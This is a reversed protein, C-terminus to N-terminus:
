PFYHHKSKAYRVFQKYFRDEDGCASAAVEALWEYYLLILRQVRSRKNRIGFFEPINRRDFLQDGAQDLPEVTSRAASIHCAPFAADHHSVVIFKGVEGPKGRLGKCFVRDRTSTIVVSGQATTREITIPVIVASLQVNGLLCFAQESNALNDLPRVIDKAPLVRFTNKNPGAEVALGLQKALQIAELQATTDGFSVVGTGNLARLLTDYIPRKHHDGIIEIASRVASTLDENELDALRSEIARKTAFDALGLIHYLSNRSM